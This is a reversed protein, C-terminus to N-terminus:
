NLLSVEAPTIPISDVSEVLLVQITDTELDLCLCNHWGVWKLVLVEKYGGVVHAAIVYTEFELVCSTILLAGVDKIACIGGHKVNTAEAVHFTFSIHGVMPVLRARELFFLTKLGQTPFGWFFM